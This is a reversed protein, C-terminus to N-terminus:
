PHAQRDQKDEVHSLCAAIPGHLYKAKKFADRDAESRHPPQYDAHCAAHHLLGRGKYDRATPDAGRMLLLKAIELHNGVVACMLPTMMYREAMLTERAADPLTPLVLGPTPKM